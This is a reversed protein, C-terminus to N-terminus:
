EWDKLGYVDLIKALEGNARMKKTEASIIDAYSQALVKNAPSFAIYLKSNEDAPFSGAEEFDQKMNNLSLYYEVVYKADLTAGIRGRAVKSLNIALANDGSMM